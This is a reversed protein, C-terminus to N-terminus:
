LLINNNHVMSKNRTAAINTGNPTNNTKKANLFHTLYFFFPLTTANKKKPGRDTHSLAPTLGGSR